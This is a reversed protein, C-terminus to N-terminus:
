SNFYEDNEAEDAHGSYRAFAAMAEKYAALTERESDIAKTKANSLEVEAKLRETELKERQTALKLYHTIVSPSATGDRLQQEALDVALACIEKERADPTMAPRSM